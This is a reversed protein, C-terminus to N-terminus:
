RGAGGVHCFPFEELMEAELVITQPLHLGQARSPYSWTGCPVAAM